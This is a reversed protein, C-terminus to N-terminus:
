IANAFKERVLASFRFWLTLGRLALFLMLSAWLGHNGFWIVFSYWAPLYLAVSLLMMNRLDRTQTAGIFIGDLQYCAVGIVPAAVTWLLYARATNRVEQNITLADIVLPGM